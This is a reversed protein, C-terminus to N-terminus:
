GRQVGSEKGESKRNLVDVVSVSPTSLAAQSAGHSGLCMQTGDPFPLADGAQYSYPFTSIKSSKSHIEHQFWVRLFFVATQSQLDCGKNDPCFGACPQYGIVQSANTSRPIPPHKNYHAPLFLADLHLFAGHFM